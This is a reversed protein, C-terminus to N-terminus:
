GIGRILATKSVGSDILVEREMRDLVGRPPSCSSFNSVLRSSLVHKILILRGGFSFLKAQWGRKKMKEVIWDFYTLDAM